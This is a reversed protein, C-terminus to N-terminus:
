YSLIQGDKSPPNLGPAQSNFKSCFDKETNWKSNFNQVFEGSPIFKVFPCNSLSSVNNKFLKCDKCSKEKEDASKKAM